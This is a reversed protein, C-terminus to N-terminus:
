CYFVIWEFVDVCEFVDVEYYFVVVDVFGVVYCVLFKM